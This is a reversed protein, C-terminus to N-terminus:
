RFVKGAYWVVILAGVAVTVARPSPCEQSRAATIGYHGLFLAILMLAALRWRAGHTMRAERWALRENPDVTM